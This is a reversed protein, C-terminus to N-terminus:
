LANAQIALRLQLALGLLARRAAIREQVIDLYCPDGYQNKMVRRTKRQHTEDSTTATQQRTQSREWATLSFLTRRSPGPVNFAAGLRTSTDPWRLM